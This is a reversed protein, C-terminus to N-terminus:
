SYSKRTHHIIAKDDDALHAYAEVFTFARKLLNETISTSFEKIDFIVFKCLHKNCIGRLWDIVTDTNRWLNLDM